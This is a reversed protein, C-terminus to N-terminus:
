ILFLRAMQYFSTTGGYRKIVDEVRFDESDFTIKDDKNITVGIKVILVADAGKFLGEKDLLREDDKKYFVGSINVPNGETLTEDGTINSTTKTIPTRSLTKSMNDILIDTSTKTATFNYVM